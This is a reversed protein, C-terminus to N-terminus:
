GQKKFCAAFFGDMKDKAPLSSFPPKILELPYRDLFKNVQKQNEEELVSCTCYIIHGGPKVMRLAKEFIECQLGILNHINEETLRWKLDPNRRLTGTGSCPADVFVADMSQKWKKHSINEHFLIQYNQVKARKLRKKAELLAKSRVDHLYIQGKGQLKHCFALAKGGAGSCYDLVQYGPEIPLLDAAVQSGEDQVEFYGLKFVDLQFVQTPNLFTIGYPSVATPIVDQDKALIKLLEDRSICAVNARITLPARENSSHFFQMAQKDDMQSFVREVLFPPASCAVHHPLPSSLLSEISQKKFFNWKSQWSSEPSTFHDILGKWRVLAYANEALFKKDKAGLARHKRFYDSMLKDM